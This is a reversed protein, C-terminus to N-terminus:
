FRRTLCKVLKIQCTTYSSIKECSAFTFILADFPFFVMNLKQVVSLQGCVVEGMTLPRDDM